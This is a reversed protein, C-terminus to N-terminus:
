KTIEKNKASLEVELKGIGIKAESIKELGIKFNVEQKELDQYKELYLKQYAKIFFLYSKPTVFVERRMKQYYETCTEIIQLHNRSMWEPLDREKIEKSTQLQPFNEIQQKAVTFLASQPWELFWDITCENFLAPFKRARERFKVGVPSFCLVVHLNDRVRNVFYEYIEQQSPEEGGKVKVAVNKTYYTRVDGLWVEKEDKALLGPIEGTSLIMNIYELFGEEKVESDTMIFTVVQNKHGTLDFLDKIFEKLQAENFGKTLVIQKIQQRGTFAALRTLSQKGSGGVGVLLASSRPMQIIRSIRVLHSLAEDFLVLDMRKQPYKTNFYGLLEICRSRLAEIDSIGEYIKPAETLIAGDDDIEDPNMFDCFYILRPDIHEKIGKEFSNFNHYSCDRIYEMIQEKEPIELLKDVFVRECEHRWLAIMFIEPPMDSVGFRNSHIITDKTVTCMGKFVRSVDRLNFIYHFKSPTPLLNAKVKKWLKITAEALNQVM